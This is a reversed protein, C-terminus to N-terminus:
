FQVIELVWEGQSNQLRNVEGLKELAFTGATLYDTIERTDYDPQKWFYSRVLNSLDHPPVRGYEKLVNYITRRIKMQQYITLSQFEGDFRHPTEGDFRHPTEGTAPSATFNTM